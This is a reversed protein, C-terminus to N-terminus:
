EEMILEEIDDIEFFRMIKAVNSFTPNKIKGRLIDNLSTNDMDCLEAIKCSRLGSDTILSKIHHHNIQLKM